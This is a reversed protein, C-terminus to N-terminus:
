AAVAEDGDLLSRVCNALTDITFPKQLFRRGPRDVREGGLVDQAYGSMLITPTEPRVRRVEDALELGSMEPMAVDTVVLDIRAATGRALALAESGSKVSLVSYGLRELMQRAVSRVLDEDEVLLITECGRPPEPKVPAAEHLEAPAAVRPLYIKMSTGGGPGSYPWISGGSQNVIGYVTSLGMGTGKGPDKTTFFPEFMREKVEDTLGVGTDSVELAVYEGAERVLHERAYEEDLEVNRTSITLTGGGEMADRANLALNLVVQELQGRDANVYGLTPDLELRLEVNAGLATRVVGSLDGVVANLDLLQPQLVQRRGFALLQRTLSAAGDAAFKIGDIDRRLPDNEDIRNGILESYGRIAMLANNFDHAVGGALAGIAEMKHAQRLEEELRKQESIDRAIGSIGTTRGSADRTPSMTVSAHFSTGDKRLRVGEVELANGGDLLQSLRARTAEREDAPVTMLINRGIAEEAAYGYLREAAPNWSLITGDVGTSIIADNSSDVLAALHGRATEATKRETIDILFGMVHCDGDIEVVRAEDCIWIWRGDTHRLRYESALTDGHRKLAMHAKWVRDRDEPHLISWFWDPDHWEELRYGLLSEIQPSMYRPTAPPDVEDVYTVLPVAEVLTRYTEQTASLATSLRSTTRRLLESTVGVAVLIAAGVGITVYSYPAAVLDDLVAVAFVAAALAAARAITM